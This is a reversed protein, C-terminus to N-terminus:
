TAQDLALDPSTWVVFPEDEGRDIVCEVHDDDVPPDNVEDDSVPSVQRVDDVVWGLHGQEDFEEADFVLLLEGRAQDDTGIIVKPNLITTIQGRLDVVGEVFEPTNPVRTVGDRKVIEEIYEIDLCYQEGDLTFELVRTEPESATADAAVGARAAAGVETAADSEAPDAEADDSAPDTASSEDDTEATGDGMQDPSPVTASTGSVREVADAVADDVHAMADGAADADAAAAQADTEPKAETAQEPPATSAEDDSEAATAADDAHKDPEDADDGSRRGERMQRIREARDMREQESM